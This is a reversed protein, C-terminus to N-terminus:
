TQPSSVDRISDRSPLGPFGRNFGGNGAATPRKPHGDVTAFTPVIATAGVIQLLPAPHNEDKPRSLFEPVFSKQIQLATSPLNKHTHIHESRRLQRPSQPQRRDLLDRHFHLLQPLSVLLQDQRSFCLSTPKGM